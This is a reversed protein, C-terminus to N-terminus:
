GINKTHRLITNKNFGLITGIKRSSLGQIRFEVAKACDAETMSPTSKNRQQQSRTAWRCNGPEYNGDNDIRDISLDPSPKRGMDALFNPFSNRWRDCVSIGRGGWNKYGKANKEYCRSKMGYWSNYEPTKPQSRVANGHKFLAKRVRERNYCGCSQTHGSRLHQVRVVIIQGCECKCEWAASREKTVHSYGIVLLRGFRQGIRNKVKNPIASVNSKPM